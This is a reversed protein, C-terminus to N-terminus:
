KAIIIIADFTKGKGRMKYGSIYGIAKWYDLVQIVYKRANTQTNKNKIGTAEFLSSYLVVRTKKRFDDIKKLNIENKSCKMRYKSLADVAKREDNKMVEVRRLLYSKISIRSDTNSISVDTIDGNKNIEKIDLIKGKITILQGTMRSYGLMLPKKFLYGSVNSGNIGLNDFHTASLLFDDLVFKYKESETKGNPNTVIGRRKMEASLDAYVYINKRMKDISKTVAGRQQPSVKETNTKYTMTRYIMDATAVAPQGNKIRDAYISVVADHVARDYETYPKGSMKVGEMNELTVNVFITVEKDTGVNLVPLDIAGAGIVEGKGDNAQLANSLTTNPSTYYKPTGNSQLKPLVESAIRAIKANTIVQDLLNDPIIEKRSKDKYYNNLMWKFSKGKYKSKKLEEKLYPILESFENLLKMEYYLSIEKIIKKESNNNEFIMKGDLNKNEFSLINNKQLGDGFIDNDNNNTKNKM